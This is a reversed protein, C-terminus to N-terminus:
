KNLEKIIVDTIDFNETSYVFMANDFLLDYGNKTAYTNATDMIDQRIEKFMEDKKRLFEEIKEKRFDDLDKIKKRLEPEKKEKAKESLLDIEDRIKRLEQTKKEIEKKVEADEKELKQNFDKTKNYEYFVKRMDLVGVKLEKAFAGASLVMCLVLVVAGLIKRGMRAEKLTGSKRFDENEV